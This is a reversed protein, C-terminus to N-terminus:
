WGTRTVARRMTPARATGAAEALESEILDRAERLEALSRYTVKKDQYQVSLEGSKIAAEISALDEAVWAM